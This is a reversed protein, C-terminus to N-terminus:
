RSESALTALKRDDGRGVLRPDLADRLGDGLLNFGLITLSIAMGPAMAPWLSTGLHDRSMSLMSGWEPMSLDGAIGLFALGAVELIASGLGLTALVLLPSTISPMIVRTLLHLPTAGMARSAQVYEMERVTLVTSRVQRAFIPVNILAVACIVASWGQRFAAVVLLAILISPFALLIDISRMLLADIRGGSYGAVAGASAGLLLALSISLGGAILSLRSGYVVRTLVDYENADTGLWHQWSPPQNAESVMKALGKHDPDNSARHNVEWPAVIDALLAVLM